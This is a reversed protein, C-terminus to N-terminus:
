PVLNSMIVSVHKQSKKILKSTYPKMNNALPIKNEWTQLLLSKFQKMDDLSVLQNPINLEKLLPHLHGELSVNITLFPVDNM